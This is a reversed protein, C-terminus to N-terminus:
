QAGRQKEAVLNELAIDTVRLMSEVALIAAHQQNLLEGLAESSPLPEEAAETQTSPLPLVAAKAYEPTV